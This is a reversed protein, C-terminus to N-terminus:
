EPASKCWARRSDHGCLPVPHRYRVGDGSPRLSVFVPQRTAQRPWTSPRLCIAGNIRSYISSHAARLTHSGYLVGVGSILLCCCHCGYKAAFFPTLHRRYRSVREAFAAVVAAGALRVHLARVGAVQELAHLAHVRVGGAAVSLAASLLFGPFKLRGSDQGPTSFVW